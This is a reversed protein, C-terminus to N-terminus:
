RVAKGELASPRFLFQGDKGKTRHTSMQVHDAHNPMLVDGFAVCWLVGDVGCM